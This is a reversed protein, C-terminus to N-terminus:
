PQGIEEEVADLGSKQNQHTGQQDPDETEALGANQVQVPAEQQHDTQEQQKLRLSFAGQGFQNGDRQDLLRTEGGSRLRRGACSAPEIEIGPQTPNEDGPNEETQDPQADTEIPKM